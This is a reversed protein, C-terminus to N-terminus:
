IYYCYRCEQLFDLDDYPIVLQCKLSWGYTSALVAPERLLFIYSTNRGMQMLHMWAKRVIQKNRIGMRLM